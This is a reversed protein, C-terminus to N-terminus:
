YKSQANSTIDSFSSFGANTEDHPLHRVKCNADKSRMGSVQHHSRISSQQAMDFSLFANSTKGHRMRQLAEEGVWGPVWMVRLEKSSKKVNSVLQIERSVTPGCPLRISQQMRITNASRAHTTSKRAFLVGCPAFGNWPM